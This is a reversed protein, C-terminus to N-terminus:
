TPKARNAWWRWTSTRGGAACRLWARFWSIARWRHRRRSGCRAGCRPCAWRRARFAQAEEDLRDAQAVLLEGEATLTWARPLRDFLRLGLAQELSEVRRAVTSHEVKLRRAAGSLSGTRALELFYRIDDWQM